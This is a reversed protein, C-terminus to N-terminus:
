KGLLRAILGRKETAEKLEVMLASINDRGGNANAADILQATKAELDVDSTIIKAIAGDNVMDSLGDSCLLYLDGTDILYENIDLMVVEDVGL